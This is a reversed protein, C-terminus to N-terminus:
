VLSPVSFRYARIAIRALLLRDCGLCPWRAQAFWWCENRTCPLAGARPFTGSVPRSPKQSGAACLPLISLLFPKQSGAACLPLISLLFPEKGGPAYGLGLVTSCLFLIAQETKM